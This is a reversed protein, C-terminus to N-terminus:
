RFRPIMHPGGMMPGGMMPPGALGPAMQGHGQLAQPLGLPPRMGGLPLPPMASMTPVGGPVGSVMPQPTMIPQMNPRMITPLSVPIAMHATPMMTPSMTVMTPGISSVMPPAEVVVGPHGQRVQHGPHTMMGGMAMAAAAASAQNYRAMKM